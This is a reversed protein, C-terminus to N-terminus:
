RRRRPVFTLCITVAFLVGGSSDCGRGCATGRIVKAISADVTNICQPASRPSVNAAEDVAALSFCVINKSFQRLALATPTRAGGFGLSATMQTPDSYDARFLIEPASAASVEAETQGFFGVYRLADVKSTDDSATISFRVYDLQPCSSGAGDCPNQVLILEKFNVQPTSPATTDETSSLKPIVSGASLQEGENPTSALTCAWATSSFSLFLFSSIAQLTVTNM